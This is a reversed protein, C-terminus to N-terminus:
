WRLIFVTYCMTSKSKNSVKLKHIRGAGRMIEMKHVTIGRKNWKTDASFDKQAKNLVIKGYIKASPLKKKNSGYDGIFIEELINMKSNKKNIILRNETKIRIAKEQLSKAFSSEEEKNIGSETIVKEMMETNKIEGNRDTLDSLLPAVRALKRWKDSLITVVDNKRIYRSLEERSIAIKARM